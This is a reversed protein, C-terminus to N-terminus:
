RKGIPFVARLGFSPDGGGLDIPITLAGVIMFSSKVHIGAGVTLPFYTDTGLSETSAGSGDIDLSRQAFALGAFPVVHVNANSSRALGVTAGVQVVSRKLQLDGPMDLSGWKGSALPCVQVNGKALQYGVAGGITFGSPKDSGSLGGFDVREHAVDARGFLAHKSGFAVDGGIMTANNGFETAAGVQTRATSFL